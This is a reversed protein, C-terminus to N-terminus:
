LPLSSASLQSEGAANFATAKYFGTPEFRLYWLDLIIADPDGDEPHRVTTELLLGPTGQKGDLCNQLYQIREVQKGRRVITRFESFRIECVREFPGDVADARFLFIGDIESSVFSELQIQLKKAECGLLPVSLLALALLAGRVSRRRM